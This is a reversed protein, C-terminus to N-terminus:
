LYLHSLVGDILDDFTRITINRYDNELSKWEDSSLMWRRGIVLLRNPYRVKIGYKDEVYARNNPDEFYEEYVRTQSIYSHIEASFSERNARGVVPKGKLDPLKFEVIDSFGSTGTIFFDPRIPRKANESQWDCEREAHVEKGMFAMKLIFENEPQALFQTIEPESTKSSSILEVFRNIQPFKEYQYDEPPLPYKFSVDQFFKSAFDDWFKLKFSETEEDIDSIELPLIDLWKVNRVVLGYDDTGYFFSNVIRSTRGEPVTFGGVNFGINMSQGAFNWGNEKLIDYAENTPQYLDQHYDILPLKFNTQHSFDIGIIPDLLNEHSTYDKVEVEVRFKTDLNEKRIAGVYEIAWHTKGFYIILKEPNLLFATFEDKLEPNEELVKWMKSWYNDMLFQGINTAVEKFDMQQIDGMSSGGMCNQNISGLLM